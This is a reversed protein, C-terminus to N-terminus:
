CVLPCLQFASSAVKVLHTFPPINHFIRSSRSQSPKRVGYENVPDDTRMIDFLRELLSKDLEAKRAADSAIIPGVSTLRM